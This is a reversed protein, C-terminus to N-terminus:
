PTELQLRQATTLSVRLYEAAESLTLVPGEPSAAAKHGTMAYM